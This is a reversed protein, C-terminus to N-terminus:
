VCPLINPFPRPCGAYMKEASARALISLSDYIVGNNRNDTKQFLMPLETCGLIVGEAGRHRLGSIIARVHERDDDTKKGEIIRLIIDVLEHQQKPLPVITEVGARELPLYLNSSMTTLSGLLGVRKSGDALVERVVADVMSLFPITVAARFRDIHLHMTNCAIVLFDAGAIELRKAEEEVMAVAREEDSRDAIFDSVPLNSLLFHPFDANRKAGHQEMSLRILEECFRLSAHPGMGGLIGITPLFTNM